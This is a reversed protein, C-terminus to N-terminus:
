PVLIIIKKTNDYPYRAGTANAFVTLNFIYSGSPANKSPRVHIDKIEQENQGVIFEEPYQIEWDQPCGPSAAACIPSDSKDLAESFVVSLAFDRTDLINLIGVGLLMTEGREISVSKFPVAVRQGSTLISEIERKMNEDISGKMEEASKFLRM